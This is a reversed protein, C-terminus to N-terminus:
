ADLDTGMGAQTDNRFRDTLAFSGVRCPVHLSPAPATPVINVIAGDHIM